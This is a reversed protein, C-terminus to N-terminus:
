NKANETNRVFDVFAEYFIVLDDEVLRYKKRLAEPTIKLWNRNCSMLRAALDWLAARKQDDGGALLARFDGASARLEEQLDVTPPTVQLVTEDRDFLPVELFPPRHRNFDVTSM